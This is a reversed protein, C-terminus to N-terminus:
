EKAKEQDCVVIVVRYKDTGTMSSQDRHWLNRLDTRPRARVPGMPEPAHRMSVGAKYTGRESDNRQSSYEKAKGEQATQYALCRLACNALMTTFCDIGGKSRPRSPPKHFAIRKATQTSATATASALGCLGWYWQLWM